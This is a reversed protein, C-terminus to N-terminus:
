VKGRSDLVARFYNIAPARYRTLSQSVVRLAPPPLIFSRRFFALFPNIWVSYVVLAFHCPAHRFRTRSAKDTGAFVPGHETKRRFVNGFVATIPLQRVNRPKAATEAHADTFEFPQPHSVRVNVADKARRKLVLRQVRLYRRRHKRKIQAVPEVVVARCM